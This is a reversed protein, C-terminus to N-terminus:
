EPIIYGFDGELGTTEHGPATESGKQVGHKGPRGELMGLLLIEFADPEIFVNM